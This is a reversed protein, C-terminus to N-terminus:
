KFGYKKKVEENTMYKTHGKKKAEEDMQKIKLAVLNLELEKPNSADFGYKEGLALIGARVVESKTKFYGKTLLAGLIVEPMGDINVLTNM